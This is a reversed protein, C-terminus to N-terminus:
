LQSNIWKLGDSTIQCIKFPRKNKPHSDNEIIKIFGLSELDQVQRKITNFNTNIKSEIKRISMERNEKLSRLIEKRIDIANRREM